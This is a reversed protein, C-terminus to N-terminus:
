REDPRSDSGNKEERPRFGELREADLVLRDALPGPFLAAHIVNERGLAMSLEGSDLLGIVKPEFGAPRAAALIKRRGDASGNRAELLVAPKRRSELARIVNDFGFVLVGARRALGLQHLLRKLLLSEVRSVLDAPVRVNAKAAKAFVNKAVARELISREASVWIGRGPLKAALDPVIENEPGAVFRVLGSEPLAERTVICRRERSRSAGYDSRERSRSGAIRSQERMARDECDPEDALLTM